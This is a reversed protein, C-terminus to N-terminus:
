LLSPDRWVIDNRCGVLLLVPDSSMLVRYLALILAYSSCAGSLHRIETRDGYLLRLDRVPEFASCILFVLLM